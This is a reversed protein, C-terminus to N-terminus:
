SGPVAYSGVSTWAGNEFQSIAVANACLVPLAPQFPHACNIKADVMPAPGKFAKAESTFAAPTLKGPGIENAWRAITLLHTWALPALGSDAYSSAGYAAMVNNYAQSQPNGSLRPNVNFTALNWGEPGGGTHAVFASDNCFMNAIVHIKLGLEKIGDYVSVCNAPGSAFTILVDSSSAGAAQLASVIDPTTADGSFFVPKGHKIGLKNLGPVLSQETVAKGPADGVNVLAVQKAGLAKARDLMGNVLGSGGATMTYANKATFDAPAGVTNMITPIKGNITAHLSTSGVALVAQNVLPVKDNLMQIGCKQGDEETQIICRDLKLPHGGIGGLHDNIFDVTATAVASQDPFSPVSGQENVWGITVPSLSPNAKGAKGGTYKLGQAVTQQTIASAGHGASATSSTSTGSSQGGSGTSSSSSDSGCAAVGFALLCAVLSAKAGRKWMM